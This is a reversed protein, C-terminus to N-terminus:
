EPNPYPCTPFHGDPIRQKPVIKVNTYGTDELIQTVPKLGTGNLPTYVIAVDQKVQEGFLVSQQKVEALFATYVADDIYSIQKRSLAAAFAEHQVDAFIDLKNIEALISSAAETTIQCGDAGYVKYGNYQAPNHSATIMIGAAAKLYRTAFSVMPVPMLEPWLYVKIGNGAFVEATIEAFSRSNIRSDYGIVVAPQMHNQKLYNAVGQSARAVIHSNMRNTGAGMVGRLGATGFALDCYFADELLKQDNQMALLEQHIAENDATHQLWRNYEETINM